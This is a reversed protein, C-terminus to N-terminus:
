IRLKYSADQQTTGCLTNANHFYTSKNDTLHSASVNVFGLFLFKPYKIVDCDQVVLAELRM